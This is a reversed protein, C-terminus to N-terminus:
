DMGPVRYLFTGDSDYYCDNVKYTYGYKFKDSPIQIREPYILHSYDKETKKVLGSSTQYKTTEVINNVEERKLKVHQKEKDKYNDLIMKENIPIEKGSVIGCEIEKRLEQLTINRELIKSIKKTKDETKSSSLQKQTCIKEHKLDSENENINKLKEYSTIIDSFETPINPKQVVEIKKPAEFTSFNLSRDSFKKLHEILKVPLNAFEGKKFDMWNRQVAADHNAVKSEEKSYKNKM